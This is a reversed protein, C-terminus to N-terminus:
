MNFHLTILPQPKINKFPDVIPTDNLFEIISIRFKELLVQLDVGMYIKPSANQSVYELNHIAKIALSRVGKIRKQHRKLFVTSLQILGQLFRGLPAKKKSLQWIGEWTEHAEWWYSYNYLDFGYLYTRNTKWSTETILEISEIKVGYSHGFKKLPHPTVSPIHSYAPFSRTTYRIWHPDVPSPQDYVSREQNVRRNNTMKPM